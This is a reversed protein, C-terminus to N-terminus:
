SIEVQLPVTVLSKSPTMLLMPGICDWRLMFLFVDLFDRDYGTVHKQLSDFGREEICAVTPTGFQKHIYPSKLLGCLRIFKLNGDCNL